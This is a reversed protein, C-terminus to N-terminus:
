PRIRACKQCQRARSPFRPSSTWSLGAFSGNGHGAPNRRTASRRSVPLRSSLVGLITAVLLNGVLANLEAAGTELEKAFHKRMTNTTIPKGKRDRVIACIAHEPIGLGVLVKVNKRQEQTPQFGPRGRSRCNQQDKMVYNGRKGRARPLTLFVRTRGGNASLQIGSRTMAPASSGISHPLKM